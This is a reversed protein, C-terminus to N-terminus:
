MPIATWQRPLVTVISASSGIIRAQSARGVIRRRRQAKPRLGRAAGPASCTFQSRWPRSRLAGSPYAASFFRGMEPLIRRAPRLTGLHTSAYPSSRWTKTPSRSPRPPSGACCTAPLGTPAWPGRGWGPRPSLRSPGCSPPVHGQAVGVLAAPVRTCSCSRRSMRNASRPSTCGYVPRSRSSRM